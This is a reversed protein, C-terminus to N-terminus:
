HEVAEELKDKMYKFFYKKLEHEQRNLASYRTNHKNIFKKLVHRVMDRTIFIESLYDIKSELVNESERALDGIRFEAMSSILKPKDNEMKVFALIPLFEDYLWKDLIKYYYYKTITKVVEKDKNLDNFVSYTLINSNPGSYAVVTSAKEPDVYNDSLLVVPFTKQNEYPEVTPTTLSSGYIANFLSGFTSNGYIISM